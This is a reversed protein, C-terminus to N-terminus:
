RRARLLMPGYSVVFCGFSGIWAAASAYLLEITYEPVLPAAVRTFAAVLISAYTLNTVLTAEISQGTHGRTARTMIAVTMVGMAGTTWAHLAGTAPLLEPWFISVALAFAGLPVFAYGIHLILVLPERWTRLGAWRSLRIAQFLAVAFLAGGTGLWGPAAIWLLLAVVTVGISIFDFRGLSAPRKPDGRRALWNHTFSPTVRGGVLTILVVIGGIGLRLGYDPAGSFIVEAHFVINAFAVVGALGAVKLNRWNKGVMIERLVAGTLVILYTADVVAAPINGLVDSMLMVTRGALWLMVLILLRGGQLPMRGTWNPIATLLFGTMVASVYGFLFEHAHWAAAGYGSAFRVAGSLLGVWLIM